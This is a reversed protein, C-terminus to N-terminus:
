FYKIYHYGLKKFGENEYFEHSKVNSIYTNLETAEYGISQAHNYIWKFLTKGLGKGRYQETIIVHDPELVKGCYHRTLFWLGSIGILKHLHFVGVCKYHQSVMDLLRIKLTDKDIKPNLEHLLPLITEIKETPIIKIEINEM